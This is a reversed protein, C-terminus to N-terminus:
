VSAARLFFDEIGEVVKRGISQDLDPRAVIVAPCRTEKLIATARGEVRGDLVQAIGAALLGGGESRSRESAFFYLAEDGPEALQFSVVLDAGMRNARGARVREPLSTDASRSLLPLGGREQLALAAASAAQWAAHAEQHSRCAPDFFVRTGVIGGSLRRLWERERVLERGAQQRGRAVLRLETLVEPGSMGDEALTRNRQFELVAAQTKSGFIGDVKGADFGLSNLRSQLESVDDGRLMPSRLYLLRDGLRYGAEYLARWTEPGVVGDPALGRATQFATAAAKTAEGFEGVPDPRCSHGLASLRDQIDRIPEGSVNLRYLRV